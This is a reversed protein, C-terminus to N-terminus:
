FDYYEDDSRNTPPPSARARHHNEEPEADEDSFLVLRCRGITVHSPLEDALEVYVKEGEEMALGEARYMVHHYRKDKKSSPASPEILRPGSRTMLVDQGDGTRLFICLEIQYPRRSRNRFSIDAELIYDGAQCAQVKAKSGIYGETEIVSSRLHDIDPDDMLTMEDDIERDVDLGSLVDGFEREVEVDVPDGVPRRVHRHQRQQQPGHGGNMNWQYESDDTDEPAVGPFQPWVPPGLQPMRVSDMTMMGPRPTPEGNVM